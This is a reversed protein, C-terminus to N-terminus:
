RRKGCPFSMRSIEDVQRYQMDGTSCRQASCYDPGRRVVTAQAVSTLVGVHTAAEWRDYWTLSPHEGSPFGANRSANSSATSNSNETPQTTRNVIMRHQSRSRTRRRASTPASVSATSSRRRASKTREFRSRPTTASSSRSADSVSTSPVSHTVRFTPSATARSLLASLSMSDTHKPRDQPRM